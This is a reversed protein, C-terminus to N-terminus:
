GKIKTAEMRALEDCRENEKDDGLTFVGTVHPNQKYINRARPLTAVYVIKGAKCLHTLLSNTFLADGLGFMADVILIRKASVGPNTKPRRSPLDTKKIKSFRRKDLRKRNLTKLFNIFSFM